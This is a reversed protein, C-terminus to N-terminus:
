QILKINVVAYSSHLTAAICIGNKFYYSNVKGDPLVIEYIGNEKKQVPLMQHFNSSYLSKIGIPEFFYISSTTFSIENTPLADYNTFRHKSFEDAAYTKNSKTFGNIKSTLQAASLKHATFSDKQM